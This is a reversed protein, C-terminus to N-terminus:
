NGTKCFYTFLARTLRTFLSNFFASSFYNSFGLFDLDFDILRLGGLNSFTGAFARPNIDFNFTLFDVLTHAIKTKQKKINKM